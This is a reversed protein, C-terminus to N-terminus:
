LEMCKGSGIGAKSVIVASTGYLAIPALVARTEDEGGREADLM